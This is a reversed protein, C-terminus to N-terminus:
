LPTPGTDSLSFYFTAGEGAKSEAWLRGRHRHIIRQVTALGIGTGPFDRATHLRQFAGFLKGACKMDFGAGNDRVFFAPRGRHTTRGFEVKAAPQKGTFKWANGLLNELVVRMLGADAAVAVGPEIVWEVQRNPEARQLEEAVARALASLDVRVCHVEGRAFRSLRLLDDILHGMRQSAARVRMLSDQGADDLKGAYDELLIRSFGDIARLPTRLDHSVSYSFSELERNAVQLEATRESLSRTRQAVELELEAAHRTVSRIRWQFGAAGLSLVAVAALSRFWWTAWWPPLITVKLTVSHESWLGDNNSAKVRFVYHGPSLSTYTAFRRKADTYRWDNDFGELKYAYRNKEPASYNLAAFKFTFVSQDRRLNVEDAVNIATKLPSEKGGIPVSKNFLEFDTLVVPPLNANDRMKDPYFAVLGETNGFFMQGDPARAAAGVFFKNGPLGDSKDYNRFKGRVPDFCSLGVTTGVWLRGQQDRQISQVSDAPLGDKKTYRRTFKGAARDFQFLGSLTGVWMEGPSDRDIYVSMFPRNIEHEPHEPDIYFTTFVSNAPDLRTLGGNGVLWIFGNTDKARGWILDSALRTPDAPDATYHTFTKGDFRGVGNAWYIVWLNDLDDTVLAWIQDTALSNPNNPDHMYHTVSDGQIRFLGQPFAGAWIRGQSDEAVSHTDTTLSHRVPLRCDDLYDLGGLTGIWARNSRDIQISEVISNCLSNTDEPNHRYVLFKAPESPLRVVGHLHSTAWVAGTNDECVHNASAACYSIPDNPVALIHAFVGRSRDLFNLGRPTCVWFRGAQDEYLAWVYDDSLSNTDQPDRRHHLFTETGPDFRDLGGGTGIWLVGAKDRLFCTVDNGGISGPVNPDSRYATFEGTKPDLVCAGEAVTGVWLRGSEPDAFVSRILDSSLSHPNNPDHRWTSCKGTKPDLRSLGKETGVWIAGAADECLATIVMDCLSTDDGPIPRYCTFDDTARHYRNLGGGTGVWLTGQRDLVLATVNNRSLSRENGEENQYVKFECGDYRNLGGRETGFWMFGQGDQVASSMASDSLGDAVSLHAFHFPSPASSTRPPTASASTDPFPIPESHGAEGAASLLAGLGLLWLAVVAPRWIAKGVMMNNSVNM